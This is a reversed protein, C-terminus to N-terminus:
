SLVFGYLYVYGMIVAVIAAVVKLHFVFLDDSEAEVAAEYNDFLEEDCEFLHAEGLHLDRIRESRFPQKCYPCRITPTEGEPIAFVETPLRDSM